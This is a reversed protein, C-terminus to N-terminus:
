QQQLYSTNDVSKIRSKIIGKVEHQNLGIRKM